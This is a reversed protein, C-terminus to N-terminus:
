CLLRWCKFCTKGFTGFTTGGYEFVHIEAVLGKIQFHNEGNYIVSFKSESFIFVHFHGDPVNSENRPPPDCNDATDGLVVSVNDEVSQLVHLTGTAMESTIGVDNFMERAGRISHHPFLCSTLVAEVETVIIHYDTTRCRNYIATSRQMANILSNGLLLTQFKWSDAFSMM